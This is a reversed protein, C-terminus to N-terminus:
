ESFKGCGECEKILEILQKDGKKVSIDLANMTDDGRGVFMEYEDASYNKKVYQEVDQIAELDYGFTFEKRKLTKIM